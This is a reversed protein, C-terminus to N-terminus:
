LLVNEKATARVVAAFSHCVEASKEKEKQHRSRHTLM